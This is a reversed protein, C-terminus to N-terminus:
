RGMELRAGLSLTRALREAADTVLRQTGAMAESLALPRDVIPQVVAFLGSAQLRDAGPGLGGCLLVVPTGRDRAREAVGMAVKGSLTQEDARGEGTIVLEARDLLTDLGILEAVVDVGPRIVATTFALLGAAAGGAAGAGGVTLVDRGTADRAM